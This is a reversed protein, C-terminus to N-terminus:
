KLKERLIEMVKAMDIRNDSKKAIEGALALLVKTKGGRYQQVMKPNKNLTELVMETIVNSDSILKWNKEASIQFCNSLYLIKIM